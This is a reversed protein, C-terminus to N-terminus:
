SPNDERNLYAMMEDYRQMFQETSINAIFDILNSRLKSQSNFLNFSKGDEMLAGMMDRLWSALLDNHRREEASRAGHNLTALVEAVAAALAGKDDLSVEYDGMVQAERAFARLVMQFFSDITSVNFFNYDMVMASLAAAAAARLQEESCGLETVLDKMYPSKKQEWGPECGGLLALEHLIRRKMEDTAKNTFTIALIDRHADRHHKRLSWRGQEDKTGLLMKIYEKALRFTKGSGASAKYIKMM